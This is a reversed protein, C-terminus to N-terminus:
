PSPTAGAIAESLDALVLATHENIEERPVLYSRHIALDPGILYTIRRPVGHLRDDPPREVELRAGISRDVDSLLPFDFGM